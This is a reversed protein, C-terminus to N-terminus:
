AFDLRVSKWSLNHKCKPIRYKNEFLKTYGIKAAHSSNLRFLNCITGRDDDGRCAYEHIYFLVNMSIAKKIKQKNSKLHIENIAIVQNSLQSKNQNIQSINCTKRKSKQGNINTSSHDIILLRLM